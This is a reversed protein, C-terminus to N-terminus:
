LTKSRNCNLLFIYKTLDFKEIKISEVHKEKKSEAIPIKIATKYDKLYINYYFVQNNNDFDIFKNINM